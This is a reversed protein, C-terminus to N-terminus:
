AGFVLLVVIVVLVEFVLAAGLWSLRFMGRGRNVPMWAWASRWIRLSADANAVLLFPAGVAVCLRVIPSALSAGFELATIAIAGCVLPVVSVLVYSRQLPTPQAEPVSRAPRGELSPPLGGRTAPPHAEAPVQRDLVPM